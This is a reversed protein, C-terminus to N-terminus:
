GAPATPATTSSKGVLGEDLDGVLVASCGFKQRDRVFRKADSLRLWGSAAGGPLGGALPLYEGSLWRPVYADGISFADQELGASGLLAVAGV